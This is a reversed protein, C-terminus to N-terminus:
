LFFGFVIYLNEVFKLIFKCGISFVLSSIHIAM